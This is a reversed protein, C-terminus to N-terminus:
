VIRRCPGLGVALTRQQLFQTSPALDWDSCGRFEAVTSQMQFCYDGTRVPFGDQPIRAFTLIPGSETSQNTPTQQLLTAACDQFPNISMGPRLRFLRLTERHIVLYFSIYM